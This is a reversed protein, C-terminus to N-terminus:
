TGFSSIVITVAEFIDFTFNRNVGNQEYALIQQEFYIDMRIASLELKYLIKFFYTM